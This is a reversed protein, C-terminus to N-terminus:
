IKLINRGNKVSKAGILIYIHIPLFTSMSKTIRIVLDIDVNKGICIYINIPALDTLFPLFISFIYSDTGKVGKMIHKWM